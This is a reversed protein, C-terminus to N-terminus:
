RGCMRRSRSVTRDATIVTGSSMIYVTSGKAAEKGCSVCPYYKGATRTGSIQCVAGLIRGDSKNSLYHCNRDPHYRTSNKGVYVIREDEDANESHVNGMGAEWTRDLM